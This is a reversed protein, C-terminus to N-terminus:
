REDSSAALTGCAFNPVTSHLCRNRKEQEHQGRQGPGFFADQAKVAVDTNEFTPHKFDRFRDGHAGLAPLDLATDISVKRNVVFVPHAISILNRQFGQGNKSVIPPLGPMRYSATTVDAHVKASAIVEELVALVRVRKTIADIAHQTEEFLM